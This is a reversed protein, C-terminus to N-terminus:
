ESAEGRPWRVMMPSGKDGGDVEGWWWEDFDVVFEGAREFGHKVYLLRGPTTIKLYIPLGLADARALGWRLIQTAASRSRHSPLTGLYRLVLKACYPRGGMYRERTAVLRDQLERWIDESTRDAIWTGFEKAAHKEEARPGETYIDWRGSAVVQGIATDVVQLLVTTTTTSPSPSSSLLATYHAIRASTAGHPSSHQEAPFAASLQTQLAAIAPIDASRAESLVLTSAEPQSLALQSVAAPPQQQRELSPM